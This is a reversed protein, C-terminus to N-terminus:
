LTQDSLKCDRPDQHSGTPIKWWTIKMSWGHRKNEADELWICIRALNCSKAALKISTQLIYKTWMTCFNMFVWQKCFHPTNKLWMFITAFLYWVNTVKKKAIQPLCGFFSWQSNSSGTRFNMWKRSKMNNKNSKAFLRGNEKIFSCDRFSFSSKLNERHKSINETNPTPTKSESCKWNAFLYIFLYQINCIYYMENISTVLVVVPLSDNWKPPDNKCGTIHMSNGKSGNPGPTTGVLPLQFKRRNRDVWVM